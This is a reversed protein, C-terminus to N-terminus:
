SLWQLDGFPFDVEWFLTLEHDDGKDIPAFVVRNYLVSDADRRSVLGAERIRGVAAAPPLTGRVRVQIVRREPVVTTTFAEAPLAASTEGALPAGDRVADNTLSQIDVDDPDADSNGVGMHTIPAGTGAFLSAILRAGGTLVTNHARRDALVTGDPATLRVQLHARM